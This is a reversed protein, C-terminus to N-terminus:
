GIAALFARMEAALLSMANVWREPAEYITLATLGLPLHQWLPRLLDSNPQVVSVHAFAIVSGLSAGSLRITSAMLSASCALTSYSLMIIAMSLPM